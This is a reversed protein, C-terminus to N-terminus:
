FQFSVSFILMAGACPHCACISFTDSKQKCLHCIGIANLFSNACQRCAGTTCHYYVDRGRVLGPNSERGACKTTRAKTVKLEARVFFFINKLSTKTINNKKKSSLTPSVRLAQLYQLVLAVNPWPAACAGCSGLWPKFLESLSM